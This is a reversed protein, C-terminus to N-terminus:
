LSLLLLRPPSNMQNHLTQNDSTSSTTQSAQTGKGDLNNDGRVDQCTLGGGQRTTRKEVHAYNPDHHQCIDEHLHNYLVDDQQQMVEKDPVCIPNVPQVPNHKNTLSYTPDSGQRTDQGRVQTPDVSINKDQHKVSSHVLDDPCNTEKKKIHLKTSSGPNRKMKKQVHAYMSIYTKDREEITVDPYRPDDHQSPHQKKDDSNTPDLPQSKDEKGVYVCPPKDSKKETDMEYYSPETPQSTDQLKIDVYDSDNNQSWHQENIDSYTPHLQPCTDHKNIDVYTLHHHQSGDNEKDNPIEEVDVYYPQSRQGKVSANTPGSPEKKVCACLTQQETTMKLCSSELPHSMDQEKIDSYSPDRYQRSVTFRTNVHDIVATYDIDMGHSLTQDNVENDKAPDPIRSHFCGSCDKVETFCVSVGSYFNSVNIKNTTTQCKM